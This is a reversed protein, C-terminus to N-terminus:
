RQPTGLWEIVAQRSFRWTSGVRRGPLEGGEALELVVSMEVQLLEATQEVTMIEPPPGSEYPRFAYVGMTPSPGRLDDTTLPRPTTDPAFRRPNSMEDVAQLSQESDPDVHRTILGAVLDKKHVGLADAARDLKDVAQAPLKVYLAGESSPAARKPM